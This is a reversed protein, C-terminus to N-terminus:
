GRRHAGQAGLCSPQPLGPQHHGHGNRDGGSSGRRPGGGQRSRTCGCERGRRGRRPACSTSTGTSPPHGSCWCLPWRRCRSPRRRACCARWASAPSRRLGPGVRAAHLAPQRLLGARDHGRLAGGGDPRRRRPGRRDSRRRVLAAAVAALALLEVVPGAYEHARELARLWPQDALSLSWVPESRAQRGGDLLHGSGIWDPVVWAVAGLVLLGITLMRLRPEAFWLWAAYLGLFPVLEPRLLCALVGLVLAARRAGDIHREVAWLMLAVAWPAESGHAAFQLWGPLLCLGAAALTGGVAGAPGGGALRHALRFALALALLAGARAVVMWLAPPISDDLASFPAFAVTFVIPLPKWSSGGGTDLDGHAIERGWVLWSMPDYAPQSPLLLSLGALALCALILKLM